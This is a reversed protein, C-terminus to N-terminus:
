LQPICDALSIVTTDNVNSYNLHLDKLNTLKYFCSKFEIEYFGYFSCSKLYLSELSICDALSKFFMGTNKIYNNNFIMEKLNVFNSFSSFIM